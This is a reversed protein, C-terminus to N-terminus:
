EPATAAALWVRTGQLREKLAQAVQRQLDYAFKSDAQSLERLKEADIRLLVCPELTVASSMMKHPPVVASIGLLDGPNVTGVVFDKRLRPDHEDNVIYHLDIRGERLLYLATAKEDMHFLVKDAALTVTDTIMAVERLQEHSLFGFFPYLRLVEPSIM